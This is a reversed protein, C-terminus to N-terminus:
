IEDTQESDLEGELEEAMKGIEKKLDSATLGEEEKPASVGTKAISSLSHFFFIFFFQGRIPAQYM